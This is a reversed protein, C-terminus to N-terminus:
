KEETLKPQTKFFKDNSMMVVILTILVFNNMIDKKAKIM